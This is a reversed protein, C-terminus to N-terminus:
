IVQSRQRFEPIQTQVVSRDALRSNIMEARHLLESAQGQAISTDAVAPQSGDGSQFSHCNEIQGASRTVSPPIASNLSSGFRWIKDSARM